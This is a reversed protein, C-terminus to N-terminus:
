DFTRTAKAPVIAATLAAFARLGKVDAGTVSASSKVEIGVLNGAADELVIDVEEGAHTRFHYFGPRVRSWGAQKRLEMLVFNELLPGTAMANAALQAANLGLLYAALGTDNLYLKPSKVLRLGLNASWAHLTQM